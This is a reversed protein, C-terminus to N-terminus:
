PLTGEAGYTVHWQSVDQYLSVPTKSLGALAHRQVFYNLTQWLPIVPLEDFATQHIRHFQSSV